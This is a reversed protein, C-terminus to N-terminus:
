DLSRLAELMLADSREHEARIHKLVREREEASRALLDRWAMTM